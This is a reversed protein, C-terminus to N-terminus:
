TFPRMVYAHARGRLDGQERHETGDPARCPEDDLYAVPAESREVDRRQAEEDCAREKNREHRDHARAPGSPAFPPDGHPHTGCEEGGVVSEDIPAFLGDFATEGRDQERREGKGGRKDRVDIKGAVAERWAFKPPGQEREQADRSEKAVLQADVGGVRERHERDHRAGEKGGERGDHGFAVSLVEV